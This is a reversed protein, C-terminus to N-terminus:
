PAEHVEQARTGAQSAAVTLVQSEGPGLDWREITGLVPDDSAFHGKTLSALEAIARDGDPKARVERVM